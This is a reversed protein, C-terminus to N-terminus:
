RAQYNVEFHLLEFFHLGGNVMRNLLKMFDNNSPMCHHTM